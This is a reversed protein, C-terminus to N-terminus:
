SVVLNVLRGPVVIEKRITKGETSRAVNENEKALAIIENEELGAAVEIKGRVKGNVQVVMEIKSAALAEEVIGPWPHGVLTDPAGLREWLIECIHPAIPSLVQVSIKLAECVVSRDADDQCDFKSVANSLEM